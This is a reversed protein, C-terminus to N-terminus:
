ANEKLVSLAGEIPIEGRACADLLRIVAADQYPRWVSAGSGHGTATGRLPERLPEALSMLHVALAECSSHAFFVGPRCPQGFVVEVRRALRIYQISDLGLRTFDATTDLTRARDGLEHVLVEAHLREVWAHLGDHAGASRDQVQAARPRERELRWVIDLGEQEYRQRCAKRQVKRSGTVPMTGAAIFVVDEIRLQHAHSVCALIDGAIRAHDVHGDGHAADAPDDARDVDEFAADEFAADELVAVIKPMGTAADDIAFVACAGRYAPRQRRITAEIDACHHNKGNVVIVDKERGVIYLQGGSIFGLDGTRLFGSEGSEALTGNFTAETQEPDRYYGRAVVPSKLWIEGVREPACESCTDPDVILIRTTEHWAGCGMLVKGSDSGRVDGARLAERDLVICEPPTGQRQLTVPGAESLGYNPKLVDGRLGASAFHSTFREYADKNIIDGGCALSALSALSLGAMRESPVQSVCYDFAFNPAGTHTGEHRAISELWVAPDAIFREVPMVVSQAGRALPALLGLCIGFAHFQPLWSVVRSHETLGWLPSQASSDITRHDLMVGKPQATSGSTYLLVALDDDSAPRPGGGGAAPAASLAEISHIECGLAQIWALGAAAFTADTLVHRADAGAIVARLLDAKQAFQDPHTVAVPVAVVNAHWAALLSLGYHFGHPLLLLVREQAEIRAILAQGLREVREALMRGDIRDVRDGHEYVLLEKRPHRACQSLIQQLLPPMGSAPTVATRKGKTKRTHTPM